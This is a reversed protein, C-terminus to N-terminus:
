KQGVQHAQVRPHLTLFLEGKIQKSSTVKMKIAQDLDPFGRGFAISPANNGGCIMPCITLHLEDVLGAEFLSANLM